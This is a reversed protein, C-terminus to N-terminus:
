KGVPKGNMFVEFLFIGNRFHQMPHRSRLYIPKFELAVTDGDKLTISLEKSVNEAPLALFIKHSGPKLRLNKTLIYKMGEGREPNPQGKEDYEPAKEMHGMINWTVSQGDINLLFADETQKDLLKKLSAKVALDSFRPQPVAEVAIEQFVDTRESQTKMAIEKKITTACGSFAIVLVLATIIKSGRNMKDIKVEKTKRDYFIDFNDAETEAKM